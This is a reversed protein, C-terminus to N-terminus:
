PPQFMSVFGREREVIVEAFEDRTEFFSREQDARAHLLPCADPADMQAPNAVVQVEPHGVVAAGDIDHGQPM